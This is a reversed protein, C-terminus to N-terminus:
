EHIMSYGGINTRGSVAKSSISVCAIPSFVSQVWNGSAPPGVACRVPRSDAYGRVAYLEFLEPVTRGDIHYCVQLPCDTESRLKCLWDLYRELEDTRGLRALMALALSTDRVWAFRYDFNRDGGIREPLSTTLAAVASGHEAHTLLQITIASRRINSSDEVSVNLKNSWNRWYEIAAQLAEAADHCTWHELPTNWGIAL